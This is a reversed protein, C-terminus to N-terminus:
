GDWSEGGGVCVCECVPFRLTKNVPAYDGMASGAAGGAGANGWARSSSGGGDAGGVGVGGGSGTSGSGALVAAMQQVFSAGSSGSSALSCRHNLAGISYGILLMTALLLSRRVTSSLGLSSFRPRPTGALPGGPGRGPKYAAEADLESGKGRQHPAGSSM